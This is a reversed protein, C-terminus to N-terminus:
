LTEPPSNFPRASFRGYAIFICVAAVVLWYFMPGSNPDGSYLHVGCFFLMELAIGVAAIPAFRAFSKNFAPLLLGLTCVIEFATLALWAEHPLVSLSPVSQESNTMKWVAGMATHLALLIQFVWLTINM